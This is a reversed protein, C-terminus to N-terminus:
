PIFSTGTLQPILAPPNFVLTALELATPTMEPLFMLLDDKSVIWTMEVSRTPDFFLFDHKDGIVHAGLIALEHGGSGVEFMEFGPERRTM